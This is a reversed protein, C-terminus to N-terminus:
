ASRPLNVALPAVVPVTEGWLPRLERYLYAAVGDLVDSDVTTWTVYLGQNQKFLPNRRCKALEDRLAGRGVYLVDSVQAGTGNKWIVYVGQGDLGGPEVDGFGYWGGDARKAWELRLGAATASSHPPPEAAQDASMAAILRAQLTSLAGLAKAEQELLAPSPLDGSMTAEAVARACAQYATHAARYRMRLEHLATETARPM